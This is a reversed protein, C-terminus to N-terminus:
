GMRKHKKRRQVKAGDRTSHKSELKTENRRKCHMITIAHEGHDIYKMVFMTANHFSDLNVKSQGYDPLNKQM